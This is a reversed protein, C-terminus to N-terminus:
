EPKDNKTEGDKVVEEFKEAPPMVVLEIKLDTGKLLYDRVEQVVKAEIEETREQGEPLSIRATISPKRWLANPLNISLYVAIEDSALGPRKKAVRVRGGSSVVLYREVLM